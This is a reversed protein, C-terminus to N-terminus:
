ATLTPHSQDFKGLLEILNQIVCIGTAAVSLSACKYLLHLWDSAPLLQPVVTGATLLGLLTQLFVRSARVIVIVLPQLAKIFVTQGNLVAVGSGTGAYGSVTVVSDATRRARASRAVM